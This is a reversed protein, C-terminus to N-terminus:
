RQQQTSSILSLSHFDSTSLLSDKSIIQAGDTPSFCNAVNSLTEQEIFICESLLTGLSPITLMFRNLLQNM